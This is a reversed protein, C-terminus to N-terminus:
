SLSDCKSELGQEGRTARRSCFNMAMLPPSHAHNHNQMFAKPGHYVRKSEPEDCAADASENKMLKLQRTKLCDVM